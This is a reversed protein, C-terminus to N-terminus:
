TTDCVKVTAKHQLIVAKHQLIVAHHPMYHVNSLPDEDPITEIIGMKLQKKIIDDYEKLVTLDQKLRGLMGQLRHLSVPSNDSLPDHFERRPLPCQYRGNEGQSSWNIMM